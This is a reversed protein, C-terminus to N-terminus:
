FKLVFNEKSLETKFFVIGLFYLDITTTVSPHNKIEVWAEEMEESWHIDDFVFVSNKNSFKLVEQFYRLTPEKAHNGDFFAFDVKRSKALAHTLTEDFNGTIVEVNKTKLKEFNGRAFASTQECGELTVVLSTSDPLALYLTSIGLSTGLEIINKPQFKNVLRFLLEGYKKPKASNKAIASIKKRKTNQIKSGAGFDIVDIMKDSLLLKARLSEILEFKYFSKKDQIVNEYLEYVFPSHIGHLNKSTILYKLYNFGTRFFIM